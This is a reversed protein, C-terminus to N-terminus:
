KNLLKHQEPHKLKHEKHLRDHIDMTAHKHCTKYPTGAVPHHGIRWCTACKHHRYLMFVSGILAVEGLDSGFGSWFGYQVGSTNNSGTWNLVDNLLNIMVM